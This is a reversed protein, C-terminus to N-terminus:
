RVGDKRVQDMLDLLRQRWEHNAREWAIGIEYNAPVPTVAIVGKVMRLANIIHEDDDDRIDDALTVIYAAHRTTM